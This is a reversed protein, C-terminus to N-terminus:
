TTIAYSIPVRQWPKKPANANKVYKDLWAVWRGWQDLVTERAIADQAQATSAGVHHTGYVNPLRALESVFEAQGKEPEGAHVDLGLRLRGARALELLRATEASDLNSGIIETEGPKLELKGLRGRELVEAMKADVGDFEHRQHCPDVLPMEMGGDPTPPQSDPSM